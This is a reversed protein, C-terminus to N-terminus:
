IYDPLDKLNTADPEKGIERNDKEKTEIAQTRRMKFEIDQYKMKYSETCRMFWIKGDKWNVEPNYKVLWNHGLFMDM